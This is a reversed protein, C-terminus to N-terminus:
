KRRRKNNETKRVGSSSERDFARTNLQEKHKTTDIPSYM